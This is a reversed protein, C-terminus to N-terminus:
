YEKMVRFILHLLKKGKYNTFGDQYDKLISNSLRQMLDQHVRIEGFTFLERRLGLNAGKNEIMQVGTRVQRLWGNGFQHMEKHVHRLWYQFILFHDSIHLTQQM